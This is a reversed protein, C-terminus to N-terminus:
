HLAYRKITQTVARRFKILKRMPSPHSALAIRALMYLLASDDHTYGASRELEAALPAVPMLYQMASLALYVGDSAMEFIDPDCQNLYEDNTPQEPFLGSM